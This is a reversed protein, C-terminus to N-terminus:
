NKSVIWIGNGTVDVAIRNNDSPHFKPNFVYDALHIRNNEGYLYLGDWTDNESMKLCAVKSGTRNPAPYSIAETIIKTTYWKSDSLRIKFLSGHIVGSIYDNVVCFLANGDASWVWQKAGLESVVVPDDDGSKIFLKGNIESENYAIWGNNTSCVPYFGETIFDVKDDNLFTRYIGPTGSEPLDIRVLVSLGDYYWSLDQGRDLLRRKDSTNVDVIWIGSGKEGCEGPSSFAVKRGDPSWRYDWDHPPLSDALMRLAVGEEWIWLGSKDPADGGFLILDGNPSWHPM